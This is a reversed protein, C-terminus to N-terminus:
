DVDDERQRETTETTTGASETTETDDGNGARYWSGASVFPGTRDGTPWDAVRGGPGLLEPSRAVVYRDAMLPVSLHLDSVRDRIEQVSGADLYDELEPDCIGSVNAARANDAVGPAAETTPAGSSASTGSTDTADSPETTTESTETESTESTESTETPLSESPTTQPRDAADCGFSSRLDTRSHDGAKWAVVLDVQGRPLFAGYLDPATPTVVTAPVGADVLQDSVRRAAEVAEEDLTDAAIRLPEAESVDLASGDSDGNGGDQSPATASPNGTVLRAVRDTDLLSLLRQRAGPTDLRSSATNAVLSMTDDLDVTTSGIRPVSDVSETTVARDRTALMQFQGSRLMQTATDSGGSTSFVLRDTRAPNEGWYRTNRELVLDGRGADFQRVIYVGGSAAPLTSLLTPFSRGEAGYIHSPLLHTFLDRWDPQPTDFTVTVTTGGSSVELDDIAAYGATGTTGPRTTIQARLYDFDSGSIPTGDSWQAGSAIRYRVKEPADEDGDLVDVEDILDTNLETREGSEGVTFVSPMTLDAVTSTLMSTSSVLHPNLDPPIDDVGVTITRLEEPVASVSDDGTGADDPADDGPTDADDDAGSDPQEVTPADGPNAQCGTVVLGCALVLAAAPGVPGTLERRRRNGKSLRSSVKM